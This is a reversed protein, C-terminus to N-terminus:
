EGDLQRLLQRVAQHQWPTARYGAEWIIGRARFQRAAVLRERDRLSRRHHPFPYLARYQRNTYRAAVSYAVAFQESLSPDGDLWRSGASLPATDGVIAAFRSQQQATLRAGVLHGIEHFLTTPGEAHPARPDIWVTASGVDNYQICGWVVFQVDPCQADIVTVTTEPTQVAARDLTQQWPSVDGSMTVLTTASSTSVFMGYICFVCLLFRQM